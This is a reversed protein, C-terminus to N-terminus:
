SKNLHIKVKKQLSEYIEGVLDPMEEDNMLEDLAADVKTNGTRTFDGDKGIEYLASLTKKQLEKSTGILSLLLKHTHKLKASM